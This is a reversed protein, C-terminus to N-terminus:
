IIKRVVRYTCQKEIAENRCVKSSLIVDVTIEGNKHTLIWVPQLLTRQETHRLTENKEKVWTQPRTQTEFEEESSM